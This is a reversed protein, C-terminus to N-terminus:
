EIKDIHTLNYFARFIGHRYEREQKIKTMITELEEIGDECCYKSNNKIFEQMADYLCAIESDSFKM